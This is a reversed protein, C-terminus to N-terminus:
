FYHLLLSVTSNIYEEFAERYKDYLQQSYDHPPKQTCMNYITRLSVCYSGWNNDFCIFLVATLFLYYTHFLTRTSCWTNSLTLSRSLCAKSFGNWSLSVLRCITGDKTWILRRASWRSFILIKFHEGSVNSNFLVVNSFWLRRIM